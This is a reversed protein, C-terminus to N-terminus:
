GHRRVTDGSNALNKAMLSVVKGPRTELQEVEVFGQRRHFRM